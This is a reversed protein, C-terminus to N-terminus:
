HEDKVKSEQLIKDLEENFAKSKIAMQRLIEQKLASLTVSKFCHFQESALVSKWAANVQENDLQESQPLWEDFAEKALLDLKESLEEMIKEKNM